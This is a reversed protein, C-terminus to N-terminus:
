YILEAAFITKLKFNGLIHQHIGLARSYTMQIYM